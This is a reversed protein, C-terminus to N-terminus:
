KEAEFILCRSSAVSPKRARAVLPSTSKPVTSENRMQRSVPPRAWTVSSLLALRVSSYSM